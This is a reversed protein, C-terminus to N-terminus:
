AADETVRNPSPAGRYAAATAATVLLVWVIAALGLHSAVLASSRVRTFVHAAGLGVNVAFALGAAWIMLREAQPRGRRVVERALWILAILGLGAVVRHLFHVVFHSSPLSPFLTNKVLPWGPIYLNHVYSGLIVLGYSGVATAALIYAWASSTPHPAAPPDTDTRWATVALVSLLGVVILSVALHFSVLDAALDGKVVQRGLWAQIGIVVVAAFAPYLVLRHRRMQRWAAVATVVALLGVVAAIWRHTWEIIMHYELRPLLGGLLGNECLPWRDACGYGSGSGRTFGGFAILVVTAVLTTVALRSVSLRKV